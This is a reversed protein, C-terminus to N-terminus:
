AGVGAASALYRGQGRGNKSERGREKERKM